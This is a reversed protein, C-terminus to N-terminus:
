GALTALLEDLAKSRAKPEIHKVRAILWHLPYGREDVIIHVTMVSLGQSKGAGQMRHVLPLWPRLAAEYGPNVVNVKAHSVTCTTNDDMPKRTQMQRCGIFEADARRTTNDDDM